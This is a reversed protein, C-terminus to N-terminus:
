RDPPNVLTRPGAGAGTKAIAASLEGIDDSTLELDGAPLWDDVQDPRRAGVIAATVGPWTLTWAVAITGRSVGHREAVPRLAEALALNRTLNDGTFDEHSRRWDDDPMASVREASMAGTLLGSQMPSYVLVGTGHDACWPIVDSAAERHILSFPPQLSDVHGVQEAVALQSADHNSLGIARVKGEQRLAVMTAWYEELPTGDEPPWHVQYLDIREVGLRRLSDEVERRVSREAMVNHPGVDAGDRDWTLGCKTFILPRDDESFGELAHGVVEESRGLGYVPATDIWNIGGEVAHRITNVSEVDDQNGWGFKWGGGGVAWAGFGVRSIQMGTSGLVVTTLSM